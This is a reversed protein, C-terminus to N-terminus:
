NQKIYLILYHLKRNINKEKESKRKRIKKKQNEKESKRKRIKKKWSWIGSEEV